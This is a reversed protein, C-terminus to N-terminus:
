SWIIDIKLKDAAEDYGMKYGVTCERDRIEWEMPWRKRREEKTFWNRGEEVKNIKLKMGMKLLKKKFKNM